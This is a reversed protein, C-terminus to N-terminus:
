RVAFYATVATVLAATLGFLKNSRKVSLREVEIHSLEELSIGPSSDKADGRIVKAFNVMGSDTVVDVFLTAHFVRELNRTGFIWSGTEEATVWLQAVEYRLYWTDTREADDAVMGGIAMVADRLADDVVTNAITGKMPEVRVTIDRPIQDALVHLASARLTQHALQRDDLTRGNESSVAPVFSTLLLLFTLYRMHAVSGPLLVSTEILCFSDRGAHDTLQMECASAGVDCFESPKRSVEVGGGM